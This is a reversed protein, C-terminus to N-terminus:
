SRPMPRPNPEGCGRNPAGGDQDAQGVMRNPERGPACRDTEMPDPWGCRLDHRRFEGLLHLLQEGALHRHCEQVM